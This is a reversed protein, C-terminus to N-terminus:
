KTFKFSYIIAKIEDAIVPDTQEVFNIPSFVLDYILSGKFFILHQGDGYYGDTILTGGNETQKTRFFGDSILGGETIKHEIVFDNFNKGDRNDYVFVSVGSSLWKNSSFEKRYEPGIIKQLYIWNDYYKADKDYAKSIPNQVTWRGPYNISYEFEKNISVIDDEFNGAHFALRIAEIDTQSLKSPPTIVLKDGPFIKPMGGTQTLNNARAILPWFYGQGYHKEAMSWLTDGYQVEETYRALMIEDHEKNHVVIRYGDTMKRFDIPNINDIQDSYWGEQFSLNYAGLQDVRFEFGGNVEIKFTLRGAKMDAGTDPIPDLYLAIHDQIPDGYVDVITGRKTYFVEDEPAISDQNVFMNQDSTSNNKIVTNTPVTDNLFVFYFFTVLALILMPLFIFTKKNYKRM